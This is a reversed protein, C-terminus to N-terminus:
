QAELAFLQNYTAVFLVGNAPVPSGYVSGGMNMEALVEEKEGARLVVVDGDEDGLYVRDGVVLPSGWVSAFTDHIWCVEGTSADLCHLFGAYDPVYVLGGEVVATSISRHIEDYHWVRGKETIDGRQTGDICYFHGPGDGNEPDQGNAIYVRDGVIVPTSIVNNRDKPWVAEKPNTDFEWLRKGTLAEYGRVWGDGQGMVVQVIGGIEGIAPSSWQGHLVNKGPSNDSWTLTGTRKDLAIISPADPSPLNGEENRGNSTGTFLLDGYSVPASATMNHPFSNVEKMMDFVWIIDADTEETLREGRYPGDNEKDRFGQTDLCVVECRSTVYYLRDKEVLPTSCIGQEPWDNVQGSALKESTAQWLFEGNSERFAMLVGRDGDQKPDRLGENNTGVFVRGGSIVPTAYSISGLSAVWKVNKGTSVDWEMPLGQMQSVSNRSVSGGWLPWDGAGQALLLAPKLYATILFVSIIWIARRRGSIESGLIM